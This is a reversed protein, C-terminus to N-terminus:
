KKLPLELTVTANGERSPGLRAQQVGVSQLVLGEDVQAGVAFAKAAQGNVTIVAAGLGSDRGALLGQLAYRSPAAPAAAVAQAPGVGLARALAQPDVSVAGPDAVAVMATDAPAVVRLGWFVLSAGALGWLIFTGGRVRWRQLSNTVM